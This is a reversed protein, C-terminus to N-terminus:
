LHGGVFQHVVQGDLLDLARIEYAEGLFAGVRVFGCPNRAYEGFHCGLV